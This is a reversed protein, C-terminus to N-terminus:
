PMEVNYDDNDCWVIMGGDIIAKAVREAVNANDAWFSVCGLQSMDKLWSLQLPTPRNGPRKTEIEWHRHYITDIGWLDSQGPSGFRIIRDDQRMAGVNRRWLRIGLRDLRIVISKQIKSERDHPPTSTM